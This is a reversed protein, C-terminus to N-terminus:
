DPLDTLTTPETKPRANTKHRYAASAEYAKLRARMINGLPQHAALAHWPSFALQEDVYVLRAPSYANQPAATLHAVPVFPSDKEPWEVSADEIPMTKIDTLLQAEFQWVATQTKFFEVVANKLASFDHHLNLSKNTLAKLNESYPVIRLKAVYSGYRLPALSGFSDGLIHTEPYGLNDLAASHVGISSLVANAGRATTSVAQKFSQSDDAHKEILHQQALFAKLDPVGFAKGNAFVFDQTTNGAHNPTVPQGNAAAGIVKLALGRPTSISDRLLDGPTTSFRMIVPYMAPTSFLGQAYPEPLNPLTTLEAKLLGHSKAHVSRLAHRYRDHMMRALRGMSANIEDILTDENPIKQEMAPDFPLPTPM